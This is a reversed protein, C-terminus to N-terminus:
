LVLGAASILALDADTLTGNGKLHADPLPAARRNDGAGMGMVIVPQNL